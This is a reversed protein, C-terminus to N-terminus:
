IQIKLEKLATKVQQLSSHCFNSILIKLNDQRYVSSDVIWMYLVTNLTLEMGKFFISFDEKLLVIRIATYFFLVNRTGLNSDIKLITLM